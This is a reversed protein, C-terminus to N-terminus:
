ADRKTIINTHVYIPISISGEKVVEFPQSTKRSKAKSSAIKMASCHGARDLVIV